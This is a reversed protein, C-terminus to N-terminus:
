LCFEGEFALWGNFEPLSEVAYRNEYQIAAPIIKEGNLYADVIHTHGCLVEIGLSTVSLTVKNTALDNSIIQLEPRISQYLSITDIFAQTFNM